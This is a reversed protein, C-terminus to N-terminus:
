RQGPVPAAASAGVAGRWRAQRSGTAAALVVALQGARGRASLDPDAEALQIRLSPSMEPTPHADARARLAGLATSLAALDDRGPPVEGSVLQALDADSLLEIHDMQDTDDVARREPNHATRGWARRGARQRCRM